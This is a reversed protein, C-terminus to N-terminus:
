KRKLVQGIMGIIMAIVLLPMLQALMGSSDFLGSSYSVNSSGFVALGHYIVLEYFRNKALEAPVFMTNSGSAIKFGAFGEWFGALQLARYVDDEAIYWWASGNVAVTALPVTVTDEWLVKGVRKVASISITGSARAGSAPDIMIFHFGYFNGSVTPAPPTENRASAVTNFPQTTNTPAVYGGTYPKDTAGVDAKKFLGIYLTKDSDLNLWARTEFYGEKQVIIQYHGSPLNTFRVNSVGQASRTLSANIGVVQVSDVVIPGRYAGSPSMEFFYLALTYTKTGDYISKDAGFNFSYYKDSDMKVDFKYKETGGADLIRVTVTANKPFAYSLTANAEKVLAGASLFQIKYTSPTVTVTLTATGTATQNQSPQSPTPTYNAKYWNSGVILYAGAYFLQNLGSGTVNLPLTRGVYLMYIPSGGGYAMTVSYTGERITYSVPQNGTVNFLLWATLGGGSAGRWDFLIKTVADIVQSPTGSYIIKGYVKKNFAINGSSTPVLLTALWGNINYIYAYWTIGDNYGAFLYIGQSLTVNSGAASSATVTGNALILAISCQSSGVVGIGTYLSLPYTGAAGFRAPDLKQNVDQWNSPTLVVTQPEAHVSSAIVVALAAILLLIFIKKM